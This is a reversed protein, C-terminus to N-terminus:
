VKNYKIQYCEKDLNAQYMIVNSFEEEESLIMRIENKDLDSMRVGFYLGTIPKFEINGLLCDNYDLSFKMQDHSGNLKFFSMVDNDYNCILGDKTQLVSAPRLLRWEREYRWCTSKTFFMKILQNYEQDSLGISNMAKEMIENPYLDPRKNNYPIKILQNTTSSKFFKSNTDFELMFGTHSNSYHSWMLLSNKNKTLSLGHYNTNFTVDYYYEIHEISLWGTRDHERLSEMMVPKMEFPDNWAVPQTFRINKNRLVDIRGASLYKYLKM